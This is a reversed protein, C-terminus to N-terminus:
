PGTGGGVLRWEGGQQELAYFWPTTGAAISGDRSGDTTLDVAFTAEDASPTAPPSTVRYASVEVDGCLEGNGVSFSSTALERAAACDGAVLDRLYADLM